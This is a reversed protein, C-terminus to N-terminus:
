SVLWDSVMLDDIVNQEAARKRRASPWLVVPDPVVKQCAEDGDLVDTGLVQVGLM